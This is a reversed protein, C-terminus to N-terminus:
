DPEHEQIEIGEGERKIGLRKDRLEPPLSEYWESYTGRAAPLFTRNVDARVGGGHGNPCTAPDDMERIRRLLEYRTGCEPCRFEYLPM